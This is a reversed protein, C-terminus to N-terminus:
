RPEVGVQEGHDRGLPDVVGEANRKSRSAVELLFRHIFLYSVLMGVFLVASAFAVWAAITHLDAVVAVLTVITLALGIYRFAPPIM